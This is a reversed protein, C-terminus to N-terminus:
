KPIESVSVVQFNVSKMKDKVPILLTMTDKLWSKDSNDVVQYDKGVEPARTSDSRLVYMKEGMQVKYDTFQAGQDWSPLDKPLDTAPVLQQSVVHVTGLIKIGKHGGAYAISTMLLAFTFVRVLKHSSM